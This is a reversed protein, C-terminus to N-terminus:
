YNNIQYIHLWNMIDLGMFNSLYAEIHALQILGQM